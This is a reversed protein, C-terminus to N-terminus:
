TERVEGQALSFEHDPANTAQEGGVGHGRPNGACCNPGLEHWRNREWVTASLPRKLHASCDRPLGARRLPVPREILRVHWERM